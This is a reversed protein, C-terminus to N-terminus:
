EVLSIRVTIFSQAPTTCSTEPLNLIPISMRLKRDVGRFFPIKRGANPCLSYTSSTPLRYATEGSAFWTEHSFTEHPLTEHSDRGPDPGSLSVMFRGVRHDSGPAFEVSKYLTNDQFGDRFLVLHKSDNLTVVGSQQPQRMVVWSMNSNFRSHFRRANLDDVLMQVPKDKFARTGISHCVHRLANRFFFSPYDLYGELPIRIAVKGYDIKDWFRSFVAQNLFTCLQDSDRAIASLNNNFGQGYTSAITPLLRNRLKGRTSWKPTTDKFYPVGFRHALAFIEDKTHGLLPRWVQVGEIVSEPTMGSIEMISCGKMVNSVVNEQVDGKHHGFIMGGVDGKMYEKYTKYRIARSQREYEDRATVGRKIEDIRRVYCDISHERCWRRVFEAEAHSEPRNGYDIHVARVNIRISKGGQDSSKKFSSKKQRKKKRYMANRLQEFEGTLGGDASIKALIKAIIMSDVGGSLSVYVNAEDLDKLREMLYSSISAYIPEKVLQDLPSVNEYRAFELIDEDAFTDSTSASSSLLSRRDTAAEFAELVAQNTEEQEHREQLQKELLTLLDRKELLSVDGYQVYHRIPMLLFCLEASGLQADLDRGVAIKCFYVAKETCKRIREENGRYVHRSVQDLLLVLALVQRATAGTGGWQEDLEGNEGQLLLLGFREKVVRDIEALKDADSVFWLSKRRDALDAGRKGFWFELLDM